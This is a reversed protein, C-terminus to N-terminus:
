KRISTLCPLSSRVAIWIRLIIAIWGLLWSMKVTSSAKNLANGLGANKALCVVNLMTGMEQQKAAIVKDLADNLLGDCVLVFDDTPLTQAQIGEIAQKLHEPKERHYVSMLVSYKSAM